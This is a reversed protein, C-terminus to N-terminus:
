QSPDCNLLIYCYPCCSRTTCSLKSLSALLSVAGCLRYSEFNAAAKGTRVRVDKECSGNSSICSGLFCLDEVVNIHTSAAQIDTEGVCNGVMVKCKNGNIQLRVKASEHEVTITLAQMDAYNDCILVIADAFDLDSLKKGNVWAIGADGHTARRMEWDIAIALLLPSM